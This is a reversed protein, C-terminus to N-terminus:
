YNHATHETSQRENKTDTHNSKKKKHKRHKHTQTHAHHQKAHQTSHAKRKKGEREIRGRRM